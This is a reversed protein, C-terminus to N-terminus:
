DSKERRKKTLIRAPIHAKSNLLITGTFSLRLTIRKQEEKEEDDDNKQKIRKIFFFSARNWYFYLLLHTHAKEYHTM